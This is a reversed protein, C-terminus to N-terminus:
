TSIIEGPRLPDELHVAEAEVDIIVETCHGRADVSGISFHFRHLGELGSESVSLENIFDNPVHGSPEFCVSRVGSLVIRADLIDEATHYNWTAGRVRSLEDVHLIFREEWGDIHISKCARDGLYITGVFEAPTM